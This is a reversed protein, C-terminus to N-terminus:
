NFYCTKGCNKRAFLSNARNQSEGQFELCSKCTKCPKKEKSECLMMQAFEKAFLRKGIGNTGVFLYSHLVNDAKTASKLIEKIKENGIIEDFAM